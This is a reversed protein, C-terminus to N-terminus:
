TKLRREVEEIDIGLFRALEQKNIEYSDVRNGSEKATIVTGFTWIKRKLRIRVKQGGCGIVKAAQKASLFDKM